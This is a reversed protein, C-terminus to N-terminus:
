SRGRDELFKKLTTIHYVIRGLVKRSTPPLGLHRRNALTNVSMNLFDAADAATLYRRDPLNTVAM